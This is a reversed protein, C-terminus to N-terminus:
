SWGAGNRCHSTRPCLFLSKMCLCVANPSDPPAGSILLPIDLFGGRSSAAPLSSIATACHACAGRRIPLPPPSLWSPTGLQGGLCQPCLYWPGWDSQGSTSACSWTPTSGLAAPGQTLGAGSPVHSGRMAWKNEFVGECFCGFSSQVVSCEWLSGGLRGERGGGGPRVQEGHAREGLGEWGM